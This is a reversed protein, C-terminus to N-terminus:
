ECGELPKGGYASNLGCDQKGTLGQNGGWAMEQRDRWRWLGTVTGGPEEGFVDTAQRDWCKQVSNEEAWTLDAEETLGESVIEILLLLEGEMEVVLEM